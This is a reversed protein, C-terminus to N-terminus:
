VRKRIYTIKPCRVTILTGKGKKGKIDFTGGIYTASERMGLLGMNKVSNSKKETYGIGDDKITLLVSTNKEKLCVWINKAKAHKFVNNISEQVCRYLVIKVEESIKVKENIEYSLDIKIKSSTEISEILDKIASKLGVEKLQPPRISIIIKRMRKTINQVLDELEQVRKAINKTNGEVLDAKLISIISNLLVANSGVEDHFASAIQRKEEERVKMLLHSFSDGVNDAIINNHQGAICISQLQKVMCFLSEVQGLKKELPILTTEYFSTDEEGTLFWTYVVKQNEFAKAHSVEHIDKGGSLISKKIKGNSNDYLVDVKGGKFWRYVFVYKASPIIETFSDKELQPKTYLM